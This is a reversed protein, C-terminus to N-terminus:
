LSMPLDLIGATQTKALPLPVTDPHNEVESLLDFFNPSTPIPTPSTAERSAREEQPGRLIQPTSAFGSLRGSTGTTSTAYSVSMNSGPDEPRPLHTSAGSAQPHSSWSGGRTSSALSQKNSCEEPLLLGSPPERERSRSRQSPMPSPSPRCAAPIRLSSSTSCTSATPTTSPAADRKPTSM